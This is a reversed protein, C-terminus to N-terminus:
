EKRRMLMELDMRKFRIQLVLWAVALIVVAAVIMIVVYYVSFNMERINERLVPQWICTVAVAGFLFVGLELLYSKIIDGYPIGNMLLIAYERERVDIKHFLVMLVTFVLFLLWIGVLGAILDVTAKMEGQFAKMGFTQPQGELDGLSPYKHMIDNLEQTLRNRPMDPKTIIWAYLCKTYHWLENLLSEGNSFSYERDQSPYVIHSDLYTQYSLNANSGEGLIGIVECEVVEDSWMLRIRDGVSFYGAYDAGLMIPVIEDRRNRTFDEERFERGSKLSRNLYQYGKWDLTVSKFDPTWTGGNETDKYCGTETSDEQFTGRESDTMHKKCEEADMLISGAMSIVMYEFQDSNRLDQICEKADSLVDIGGQLVDGEPWVWDLNKGIQKQYEVEKDEIDFYYSVLYTSAFFCSAFQILLVFDLVLSKRINRFADKIVSM